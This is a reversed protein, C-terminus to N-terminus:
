SASDDETPSYSNLRILRRRITAITDKIRKKYLFLQWRRGGLQHWLVASRIGALLLARIRDAVEQRRLHEPNGAVHIRFTLNSLTEQYLRSLELYDSDEYVVPLEGHWHTAMTELRRRITNQMNDNRLFKKQLVLLGLLYRAEEAHEKLGQGDLSEQLAQLGKSLAAPDSYIDAVSGPDTIFLTRVLGGLQQENVRGRTALEHVLVACQMTAGLAMNRYEWDSFGETRSTSTNSM